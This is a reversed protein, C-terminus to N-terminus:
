EAYDFSELLMSEVQDDTLGQIAGLAFTASRIGGGSICLASLPVDEKAMTQLLDKRLEAQRDILDTRRDPDQQRLLQEELIRAEDKAAQFYLPRDTGKPDAPGKRLEAFEDALVRTFTIPNAESM